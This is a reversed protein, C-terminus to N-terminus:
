INERKKFKQVKIQKSLVLNIATKWKSCENESEFRLEFFRQQTLITLTDKRGKEETRCICFGGEIPIINVIYQFNPDRAVLLNSAGLMLYRDESGITRNKKRCKGIMLSKQPLIYDNIIPVIKM